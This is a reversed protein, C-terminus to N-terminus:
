EGKEAYLSSTIKIMDVFGDAKLSAGGILGGDIDDEKMLELVNDPKVSGGYLIRRSYSFEESYLEKLLKRIM